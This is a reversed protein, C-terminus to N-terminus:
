LVESCPTFFVTVHTLPDTKNMFEFQRPGKWEFALLTNPELATVKCGRTSNQEPDDPEWFLEYRGGVRPEVDAIATLWNQLEDNETFLAFAREVSCHLRASQMIIKNLPKRGCLNKRSEVTYHFIHEIELQHKIVSQRPVPQYNKLIESIKRNTSKFPYHTRVSLFIM